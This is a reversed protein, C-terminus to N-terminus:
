RASNKSIRLILTTPNTNGEITFNATIIDPVTIVVHRESITHKSIYDILSDDM